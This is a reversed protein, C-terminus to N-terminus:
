THYSSHTSPTNWLHISSCNLGGNKLPDLILEECGFLNSELIYPIQQEMQGLVRITCVCTHLCM